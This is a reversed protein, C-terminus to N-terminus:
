TEDAGVDPAAGRPRAQGDIDNAPFSAPNGQDIGPSGPLLHLDLAARNVYQV